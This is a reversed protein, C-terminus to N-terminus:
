QKAERKAEGLFARTAAEIGVICSECLHRHVKFKDAMVITDKGIFEFGQVQSQDKEDRCFDCRFVIKQSM